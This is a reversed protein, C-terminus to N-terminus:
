RIAFTPWLSRRAIAARGPLVFRCRGGAIRLVHERPYRAAFAFRAVGGALDLFLKAAEAAPELCGLPVVGLVAAGHALGRGLDVDGRAFLCLGEVLEARMHRTQAVAKGTDLASCAIVTGLLGDLSQMRTKGTEGILDGFRGALCRALHGSEGAVDFGNGPLQVLRAAFGLRRGLRKCRAQGREVPADLSDFTDRSRVGFLDFVGNGPDLDRLACPLAFLRFVLMLRESLQGVREALKGRPQRRIFRLGRARHRTEFVLNGFDLQALAIRREVAAQLSNLVHQGIDDSPKFVGLAVRGAGRARNLFGEAIQGCADIRAVLAVAVRDSFQAANQRGCRRMGLRGRRDLRRRDRLRGARIEIQRGKGVHGRLGRCVLLRCRVKGGRRFQRGEGSRMRIEGAVVDKRRVTEGIGSHLGICACGIGEDCGRTARGARRGLGLGLM